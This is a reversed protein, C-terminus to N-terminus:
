LIIRVITQDMYFSSRNNLLHRWRGPINKQVECLCAPWPNSMQQSIPRDWPFYMHLFSEEVQAIYLLVMRSTFSMIWTSGKSERLLQFLNEGIIELYRETNVTLSRGREDEFFYPGICNRRSLPVGYLLRELGWLVIVHQNPQAQAWFKM